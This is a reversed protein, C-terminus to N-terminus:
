WGFLGTVALRGSQCGPGCNRLSSTDIGIGQPNTTPQSSSAAKGASTVGSELAISRVQRLVTNDPCQLVVSPLVQGAPYSESQCPLLNGQDDLPHVAPQGESPVIFRESFVVTIRAPKNPSSEKLFVSVPLQFHKRTLRLVCGNVEAACYALQPNLAM